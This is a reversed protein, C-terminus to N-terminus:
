EKPDTPAHPPRLVSTRELYEDPTIDGNALRMRLTQYAEDGAPRQAAWGRPGTPRGGDKAESRPAFRIPGLRGCALMKVVALILLAKFIWFGFFAGGLANAGHFPMALLAFMGVLWRPM